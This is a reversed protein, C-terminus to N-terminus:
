KRRIESTACESILSCESGPHVHGAVTVAPSYLKPRLQLLSTQVQPPVHNVSLPPHPIAAGGILLCGSTPHVRAGVTSAASPGSLRSKHVQQTKGAHEVIKLKLTPLANAKSSTLHAIASVAGNREIQHRLIGTLNSIACSKLTLRLYDKYRKRQGGQSRTSGTLQGYLLQKLIRSDPMRHVHGCWCLCIDHIKKYVHSQM